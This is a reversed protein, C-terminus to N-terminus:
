LEHNISNNYNKLYYYDAFTKAESNQEFDFHLMPHVDNFISLPNSIIVNFYAPPPSKWINKLSSKQWM